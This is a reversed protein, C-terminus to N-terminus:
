RIGAAVCAVCALMNVSVVMIAVRVCRAAWLTVMSMASVKQRIRLVEEVVRRNKWGDGGTDKLGELVKKLSPVLVSLHEPRSRKVRLKRGKLVDLLNKM